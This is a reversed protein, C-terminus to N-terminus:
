EHKSESHEDKELYFDMLEDILEENNSKKAMVAPYYGKEVIANYTTPGICAIKEEDINSCHNLFNDFASPSSFTICDYNGSHIRKLFDAPINENYNTIYTNIRHTEAVEALGDELVKGALNGQALLVKENKRVAHETLDKLFAQSTNGSATFDPTRDFKEVYEGTKRGIVAIKITEPLSKHGSIRVYLEYFNIVGNKSTFIIWNFRNIQQLIMKIEPTSEAPKIIILPMEYVIANYKKLLSAFNSNNEESGTLIIRKGTLM